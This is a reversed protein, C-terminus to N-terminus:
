RIPPDPVLAKTNSGLELPASSLTLSKPRIVVGDLSLGSKWIGSTAVMAFKLACNEEGDEVVFEGVDYETWGNEVARITQMRSVDSGTRGIYCRCEFIFEAENKSFTFIAPQSDWGCSDALLHTRWSITYDGPPLSCM